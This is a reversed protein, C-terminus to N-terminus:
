FIELTTEGPRAEGSPIPLQRIDVFVFKNPHRSDMVFYELSNLPTYPHPCITSSVESATDKIRIIAIKYNTPYPYNDYPEGDMYEAGCNMASYGKLLTKTIASLLDDQPNKPFVQFFKGSTYDGFTPDYIYVKDGIEKVLFHETASSSSYLFSIGLKPSIFKLQGSISTPITYSGDGTDIKNLPAQSMGIDHSLPVHNLFMFFRYSSVGLLILIVFVTFLILIPHPAKTHSISVPM